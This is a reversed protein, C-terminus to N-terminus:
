MYTIAWQLARQLRAISTIDKPDIHRTARICGSVSNAVNSAEIASLEAVCMTVAVGVIRSEIDTLEARHALNRTWDLWKKLIATSRVRQHETHKAICECWTHVCSVRNDLVHMDAEPEPMLLRASYAASRELPAHRAVRWHGDREDVEIVASDGYHARLRKACERAVEESRTTHQYDARTFSAYYHDIVDTSARGGSCARGGVSASASADASVSIHNRDATFKADDPTPVYDAGAVLERGGFHVFAGITRTSKDTHTVIWNIHDINAGDAIAAGVVARDCDVLGFHPSKLMVRYVDGPVLRPHRKLEFAVEHALESQNPM